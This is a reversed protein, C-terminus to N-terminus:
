RRLSRYVGHTKLKAHVPAHLDLPIGPRVLGTIKLEKLKKQNKRKKKKTIKIFITQLKSSILLIPLELTALMKRKCIVCLRTM